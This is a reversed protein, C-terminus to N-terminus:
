RTIENGVKSLARVYLALERDDLTSLDTDRHREVIRFAMRSNLGVALVDEVVQKREAPSTAQRM